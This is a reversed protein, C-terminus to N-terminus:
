KVEDTKKAKTARTKKPTAKAKEDKPYKKNVFIEAIDEASMNESINSIGKIVSNMDVENFTQQQSEAIKSINDLLRTLSDALPNTLKNKKFEIKEDIAKDIYQSQVPNVYNNLTETLEGDTYRTYFDFITENELIMEPVFYLIKYYAKTVDLYEPYYDLIGDKEIFVLDSVANVIESIERLDLTKKM